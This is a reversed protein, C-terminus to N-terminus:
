IFVKDDKWSYLIASFMQPFSYEGVKFMGVMPMSTWYVPSILEAYCFYFRAQVNLELYAVHLYLVNRRFPIM